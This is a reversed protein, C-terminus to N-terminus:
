QDSPKPFPSNIPWAQETPGNEQLLLVRRYAEDVPPIDGAAIWWCVSTAETPPKFWAQRRRLFDVHHTEFMFTKLSELDEWISYNIILNPDDMGDVVVYSSSGGGEDTLRWVFGPSAEAIANIPDLGDVFESTDPHDLPQILMGINCQALHYDMVLGYSVGWRVYGEWAALFKLQVFPM